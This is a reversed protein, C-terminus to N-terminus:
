KRRCVEPSTFSMEWRELLQEREGMIPDNGNACLCRTIEKMKFSVKEQSWKGWWSWWTERNMKHCFEKVTNDISVGTGKKGNEKCYLNRSPKWRCCVVSCGRKLDELSNFETYKSKFVASWERRRSVREEHPNWSIKSERNGGIGSSMGWNGRQNKRKEWIEEHQLAVLLGEAKWDEERGISM